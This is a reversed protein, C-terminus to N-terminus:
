VGELLCGQLRVRHKIYSLRTELSVEYRTTSFLHKREPVDLLGVGPRSLSTLDIDSALMMRGLYISVRGNLYVRLLAHKSQVELLCCLGYPVLGRLLCM